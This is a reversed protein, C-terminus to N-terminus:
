QDARPPRQNFYKYIDFGTKTTYAIGAMGIGVLAFRILFENRTLFDSSTNATEVFKKSAETNDIGNTIAKSIDGGNFLNSKIILTL